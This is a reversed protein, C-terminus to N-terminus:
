TTAALWMDLPHSPLLTHAPHPVRVLAGSDLDEELQGPGWGLYGSFLRAGRVTLELTAPDTTLPVIGLREHVAQFRVPPAEDPRLLVIAIYGDSAGNSVPGGDFIVGPESLLDRWAPSVAPRHRSPRNLRVGVTGKPPDHRLVLVVAQQLDRETVHPAAVLVSGALNRHHRAANRVLVITEGANEARIEPTEIGKALLSRLVHQWVVGVTLLAPGDEIGGALVRLLEGTFATHEAGEPALARGTRSASVLLCTQDILALDAVAQAGTAEASLDADGSALGAYCCDLIVLRRAATSRAVGQRVREFPLGAEAPAAQETDPLALVLRREWPDILGHGAFYVLLLGDEGVEGAALRVARAVTQPMPEDVLTLCHETPLGWLDPDTLIERLGEVNNAVAPLDTLHQYHATGIVVARSTQPNSLVSM